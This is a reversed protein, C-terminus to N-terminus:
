KSPSYNYYRGKVYIRYKADPTSKKLAASDRDGKSPQSSGNPHNHDARKVLYGKDTYKFVVATGGSITEEQHSTNLVNITKKTKPDIFHTNSWEVKTNNALFEFLKTAENDTKIEYRHNKLRRGTDKGFPDHIEINITKQSKLISKDVQIGNKTGTKDYERKGALYDAKNYIVDYDNGGTNDVREFNGWEDVTYGDELLGTFDTFFMPNQFCYRYPTWGPAQDSM